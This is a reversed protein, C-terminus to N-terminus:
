VRLPLNQVSLSSLIDPAPNTGPSLHIYSPLVILVTCTKELRWSIFSLHCGIASCVGHFVLIGQSLVIVEKNEEEKEPYVKVQEDIKSM